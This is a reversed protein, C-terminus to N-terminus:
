EEREAAKLLKKYINNEKNVEVSYAMSNINFFDNENKLIYLTLSEYNDVNSITYYYQKNNIVKFYLYIYINGGTYWKEIIDNKM